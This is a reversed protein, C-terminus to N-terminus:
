KKETQHINEHTKFISSFISLKCFFIKNSKIVKNKINKEPFILIFFIIIYPSFIVVYYPIYHILYGSLLAILAIAITSIQYQKATLDLIQKSEFTRQISGAGCKIIDDKKTLLSFNM